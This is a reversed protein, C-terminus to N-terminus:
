FRWRTTRPGFEDDTGFGFVVTPTIRYVDYSASGSTARRLARRLGPGPRDGAVRWGYKSRYEDAVRELEADTTVKM